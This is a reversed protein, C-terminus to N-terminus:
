KQIMIGRGRSLSLEPEDRSAAEDGSARARGDNNRYQETWAVYKPVVKFSALVADLEAGADAGGSGEAAASPWGGQASVWLTVIRGVDTNFRPPLLTAIARAARREEPKAGATAAARDIVSGAGDEEDDFRGCEKDGSQPAGSLLSPAALLSPSAAACRSFGGGGTGAPRTITETAFTLRAGDAAVSSALVETAVPRSVDRLAGDRQARSSSSPPSSGCAGCTHCRDVLRAFRSLADQAPRAHWVGFLAAM